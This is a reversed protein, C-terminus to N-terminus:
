VWTPPYPPPLVGAVLGPARRRLGVTLRLAFEVFFFTAVAQLPVYFRDFYAYAFAVAGAAMTLGAAARVQNDDCVAARLPRGDARRGAIDQDFRVSMSSRRRAVDDTGAGAGHRRRPASRRESAVAAFMRSLGVEEGEVM